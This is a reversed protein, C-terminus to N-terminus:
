RKHRPRVLHEMLADHPYAVVGCLFATDTCSRAEQLTKRPVLQRRVIRDVRPSDVKFYFHYFSAYSVVTRSSNLYERDQGALTVAAAAYQPLQRRFQGVRRATRQRGSQHRTGREVPYEAQAAGPLHSQHPRDFTGGCRGPGDPYASHNPQQPRGSGASGAARVPSPRRASAGATPWRQAVKQPLHEGRAHTARWLALGLSPYQAILQELDKHEIIGISCDTIAAVAVENNTEPLVHQHLDCFDGPYQFAYIQRNGDQLREYLCAVGDILVTSHGPSRGTAIIDEGRRTGARVKICNLVADLETDSDVGLSRLKQILSGFARRAFARSGLAGNLRAGVDDSM